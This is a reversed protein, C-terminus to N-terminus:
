TLTTYIAMILTGYLCTMKMNKAEQTYETIHFSEHVRYYSVFIRNHRVNKINGMMDRRVRLVETKCRTFTEIRAKLKSKISM